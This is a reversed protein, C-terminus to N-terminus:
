GAGTYNEKDGYIARVKCGYLIINKQPELQGRRISYVKIHIDPAM